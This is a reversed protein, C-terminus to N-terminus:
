SEQSESELDEPGEIREQIFDCIQQKHHDLIENLTRKPSRQVKGYRKSLKPTRWLLHKDWVLVLSNDKYWKSLWPNTHSAVSRVPNDAVLSIVGSVKTYVRETNILLSALGAFADGIGLFFVDTADNPEIYNEWLYKALYESKNARSRDEPEYEGAEEKSKTEGTFHKPINADIVAYGNGRAWGIYDKVADAIWANHTELQNTVPDPLGMLEPPDHFILLLPKKEDYDSTALVENRFSESISDRYIYLNTMKYDDYLVKTQYQRLVDHLRHGYFTPPVSVFLSDIPPPPPPERKPYLCQWYKSQERKVLEITEVALKSATINSLRDPPEGM